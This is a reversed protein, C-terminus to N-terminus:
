HNKQNYNLQSTLFELAVMSQVRFDKKIPHMVVLKRLIQAM